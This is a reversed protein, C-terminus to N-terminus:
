DDAQGSDLGFDEAPVGYFRCLARLLLLPMVEDPELVPIPYVWGTGRLLSGGAVAASALEIEIGYDRWVKEVFERL